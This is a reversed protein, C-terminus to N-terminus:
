LVPGTLLRPDVNALAYSVADDVSMAEGTERLDRAIPDGLSAAVIAGTERLAELLFNSRATGPTVPRGGSSEGSAFRFAAYSAGQLVGALGPSGEALARACLALCPGSQM